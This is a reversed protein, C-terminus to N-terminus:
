YERQISKNYLRGRRKSWNNNDVKQISIAVRYEKMENLLVKLKQCKLEVLLILYPTLLQAPAHQSYYEGSRKYEGSELAVNETV